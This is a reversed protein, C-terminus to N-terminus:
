FVAVLEADLEDPNIDDINEIEGDDIWAQWSPLIDFSNHHNDAIFEEMAYNPVLIEHEAESMAAYYLRRNDNILFRLWEPWGDVVGGYIELCEKCLKWKKPKSELCAPCKRSNLM